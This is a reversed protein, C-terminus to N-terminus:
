LRSVFSRDIKMVDCPFRHLYSLSSYGKGFDDIAVGAGLKKSSPWYPRQRPRMGRMALSETVEITLCRAPLDAIHLIRAIDDLLRPHQFQRGSVNVSVSLTVELCAIGRM